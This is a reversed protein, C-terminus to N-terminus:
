TPIIFFGIFDFSLRRIQLLKLKTNIIIILVTYYLIYCNTLTPPRYLPLLLKDFM